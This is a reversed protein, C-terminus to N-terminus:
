GASEGASRGPGKEEAEGAVVEPFLAAVRRAENAQGTERCLTYAERAATEAEPLGAALCAEALVLSTAIEPPRYGGQRAAERAQRAASVAKDPEGRGLHLRTVAAGHYALHWFFGGKAIVKLARDLHREADEFRGSRIEADALAVVAAAQVLKAGVRGAYEVATTAEDFAAQDDETEWRLRSLWTHTLALGAPSGLEDYLDRAQYLLYEADAIRGLDFQLAGLDMLDTAQQTRMGYRISVALAQRYTIEALHLKGLHRFTDALANLTRNEGAPSGMEAYLAAAKEYHEAADALRGTWELASGLDALAAAECERWGLEAALEVATRMNQQGEAHQGGRFQADGISHHLLAQVHRQGNATAGHLMGPAVALWEARRRHQIFYVHALDVLSWAPELPGEQSARAGLAAANPMEAEVLDPPFAPREEPQHERPLRLAGRRGRPEGARAMRRYFDTLRLWAEAREPDAGAQEAAYLRVLDHFRYRDGGAQEVLHVSRLAALRRVAEKVPIDALAALVPPSFDAGPVLGLLRFARQNAPELAQCTMGFATSLVSTEEGALALADLRGAEDRALEAAVSGLSATPDTAINAAVIRLALPLGGCLQGLQDAADSEHEVRAAGVAARLLARSEDASLTALAVLGAGSRVVLESMRHRSTVLVAGRPPLLPIVQDVDRANDLVLLIRKDALMSRYLAVQERVGDPLEKAPVGLSRLLYGVSAAATLPQEDPQYGRLNLFLQGDPFRDRHAHAWHVALATKGVGAVGSIVGIGDVDGGLLEDLRRLHVARGAFQRTDRPLQAPAARTPEAPCVPENPVPDGDERLIRQQAERLRAGPELGLEDVMRRHAEAYVRLAESRRECRHLATMLQATLRERFPHESAVRRLEGMIQQHRGAALEAEFLEELAALRREEIVGRERDALSETVGGLAPGEWLDLAGRLLGCAQEPQGAGLFGRAQTVQDSFVQLDLEGPRVNILYGYGTRGIVHQGLLSRLESIYVQLRGRVSPPPQDGWVLAALREESVTRNAHLLLVALVARQKPAGLAIPGVEGLVSVPGLLRYRPEQVLSAIM